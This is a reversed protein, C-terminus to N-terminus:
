DSARPWFVTGSPPVWGPPFMPATHPRLRWRGILRPEYQRVLLSFILPRLWAPQPPPLIKPRCPSRIKHSRDRDHLPAAVCIVLTKCPLHPARPLYRSQALHVIRTITLVTTDGRSEGFKRCHRRTEEPPPWSANSLVVLDRQAPPEPDLMGGARVTNKAPTGEGPRLRRSRQRCRDGPNAM